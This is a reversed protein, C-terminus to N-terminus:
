EREVVTSLGLVRRHNELLADVVAYPYGLHHKALPRLEAESKAEAWAAQAEQALAHMKAEGDKVIRQWEDLPDGAAHKQSRTARDMDLTKQQAAHAATLQRLADLLETKEKWAIKPASLDRRLKRLEIEIDILHALGAEDNARTEDGWEYERRYRETQEIRYQEDAEAFTTPEEDPGAMNRAIQLDAKEYAQQILDDLTIDGAALKEQNQTMNYLMSLYGGGKEGPKPRKGTRKDVSGLAYDDRTKVPKNSM